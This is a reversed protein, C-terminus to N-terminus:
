AAGKANELIKEDAEHPFLNEMCAIAITLAQTYEGNLYAFEARSLERDVEPYTSRYKNGFVIANEVMLAMGVVNNVNNYLKYIYDIAEDLTKNLNQINLPIENLLSKIEKVYEHGKKLDDKYSSSIAPLRYQAIKVEVENLVVQLKMVQSVARAEDSSTKDISHKYKRLEEIDALSVNYIENAKKFIETSPTDNRSIMLNLSRYEDQYKDLKIKEEKISGKLDELSYRESEKNVVTDIYTYLHNLEEINKLVRDSAKKSDEFALKEDNLAKILQALEEKIGTLDEKVGEVNASIINKLDANLRENINDLKGEIDLHKLYVGRQISLAHNRSVEDIMVPIVGKADNICDPLYDISEDITKIQTTLTNLNDQANAFENAYMWEEFSSFLNECEQLKEEIGEYAISLNQANERVKTKLDRFQEKLENSVERQVSEQKSFQELFDDISHVEEELDTLNEKVVILSNKADGYKKSAIDDELGEILENLRDINKQAQEYKSFYEEVKKYTEENIKAMAQAKTLKFALPITRVRNFRVNIEDLDKKLNSSHTNRILIFVILAAVVILLVLLILQTNSDMHGGKFMMIKSNNMLKKLQRLCHYKNYNYPTNSLLM